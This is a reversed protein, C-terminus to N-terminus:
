SQKECYLFPYYMSDRSAALHIVSTTYVSLITLAPPQELETASCQSSLGPVRVEYGHMYAPEKQMHFPFILGSTLSILTSQTWIGPLELKESKEIESWFMFIDKTNCM